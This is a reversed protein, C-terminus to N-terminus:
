DYRAGHEGEERAAHDLWERPGALAELTFPMRAFEIRTDAEDDGFHRSRGLIDDGEVVFPVSQRRAM